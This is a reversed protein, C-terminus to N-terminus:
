IEIFTPLLKIYFLLSSKSTKIINFALRESYKLYKPHHFTSSPFIFPHHLSIFLFSLMEFLAPLYFCDLDLWFLFLGQIFGCNEELVFSWYSGWLGLLTYIHDCTNIFAFVLAPEYTDETTLDASLSSNKKKENLVLSFNMFCLNLVM